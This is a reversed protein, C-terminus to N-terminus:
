FKRKTRCHRRNDQARIKRQKPVLGFTTSHRRLACAATQDHGIGPEGSFLRLQNNANPAVDQEIVDQRNTPTVTATIPRKKLAQGNRQALPAIRGYPANTVIQFM